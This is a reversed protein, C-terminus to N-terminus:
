ATHQAKLQDLETHITSKGADAVSASGDESKGHGLLTKVTLTFVKVDERLGYHNVYELDYNIKDFISIANRGKVQALGTMGPLVKTRERQAETMNEYYETIWPRPGVFSMEGKLVNFLQPLEDISTARLVKGIKTHADAKKNDLVDNDVRCTRFKVIKFTKGNRGTRVQRFFVPGGDDLKILIAVVIFVPILLLLMVTSVLFDFLRKVFRWVIRKTKGLVRLLKKGISRVSAFTARAVSRPSVDIDLPSAARQQEAIAQM